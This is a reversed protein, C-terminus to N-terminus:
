MAVHYTIVHCGVGVTHSMRRVVHRNTDIICGCTAIICPHPRQSHSIIACLDTTVVHATMERGKRRMPQPRTYTTGTPVTSRASMYSCGDVDGRGDGDVQVPGLGRAWATGTIVHCTTIVHCSPAAYMTFIFTLIFRALAATTTVVVTGTPASTARRTAGVATAAVVVTAAAVVAGRGEAPGNRPGCTTADNTPHPPAATSTSTSTSAPECTPTFTLAFTASEPDNIATLVCTPNPTTTRILTAIYTCGGM